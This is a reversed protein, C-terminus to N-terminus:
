KAPQSCASASAEAGDLRGDYVKFGFITPHYEVPKQAPKFQPYTMLMLHPFTTGFFAGDLPKHSPRGQVATLEYVHGCRPCYAKATARGPEDSTGVPLVGCSECGVNPCTGFEHREYKRAMM